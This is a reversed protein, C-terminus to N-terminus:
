PEATRRVIATHVEGFERLFQELTLEFAGHTTQGAYPDLGTGKSEGSPNHLQVISRRLDVQKLKQPDDVEGPALSLSEDAKSRLRVRRVSYLHAPLVVTGGGTGGYTAIKELLERLVDILATKGPVVFLRHITRLKDVAALLKALEAGAAGPKAAKWGDVSFLVNELDSKLTPQWQVPVVSGFHAGVGTDPDDVEDLVKEVVARTRVLLKGIGMGATLHVAQHEPQAGLVGQLLAKLAEKNQLLVDDAAAGPTFATAVDATAEVAPGYFVGYVATALGFPVLSYGSATLAAGIPPGSGPKGHVEVYRVFAKELLPAWHAAEFTDVRHAVVVPPAGGQGPTRTAFWTSTVPTEATRLGAGIQRGGQAAVTRPVVVRQRQWRGGPLEAFFDVSANMGTASIMTRIRANDRRAISSLASLFYCDDLTGQMVDAPEPRGRVYLDDSLRTQVDVHRSVIVAEGEAEGAPEYLVVDELRKGPDVTVASGQDRLNKVRKLSADGGRSRGQPAAADAAVAPPLWPVHATGPLLRPSGIIPTADRDTRLAARDDAIDARLRKLAAAAAEGPQYDLLGAVHKDLEALRGLLQDAPPRTAVPQAALARYEEALKRAHDYPFAQAPNPKAAHLAALTEGGLRQVARRPAAPPGALLRSVERNGAVRQLQMVWEAGGVAPLAVPEPRASSRREEHEVSRMSATM